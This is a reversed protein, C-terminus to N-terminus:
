IVCMGNRADKLNRAIRFGNETRPEEGRVFRISAAAQPRATM